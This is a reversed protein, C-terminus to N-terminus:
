QTKLEKIRQSILKLTERTGDIARQVDKETIGKDIYNKKIFKYYGKTKKTEGLEKCLKIREKITNLTPIVTYTDERLYKLEDIDKSNKIVENLGANHGYNIYDVISNVPKGAKRGYSKIKAPLIFAKNIFSSEEIDELDNMLEVQELLDGDELFLEDFM